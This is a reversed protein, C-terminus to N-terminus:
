NLDTASLGLQTLMAHVTGTPLEKKLDQIVTRADGYYLTIHSGKGRKSALRVSVGRRTGLRRVKRVFESGRLGRLIPCKQGTQLANRPLSLYDCWDDLNSSANRM